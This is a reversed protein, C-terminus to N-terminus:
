VLSGGARSQDNFVISCDANRMAQILYQYDQNDKISDTGVGAGLLKAAFIPAFQFQDPIDEITIVSKSVLLKLTYEDGPIPYIHFNNGFATFVQPEGTTTKGLYSDRFDAVQLKRLKREGYFVDFIVGVRTSEDSGNLCYDADLGTKLNKYYEWVDATTAFTMHTTQFDWGAGGEAAVLGLAAQLMIAARQKGDDTSDRLLFAVLDIAEQQTM